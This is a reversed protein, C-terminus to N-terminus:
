GQLVRIQAQATALQGQLLQVQGLLRDREVIVAALDPQAPQARMAERQGAWWVLFSGTVGADDVTDDALREAVWVPDFPQPVPLPAEVDERQYQPFPPPEDQQLGLQRRVRELPIREYEGPRRGSIWFIYQIWRLQARAGGHPQHG